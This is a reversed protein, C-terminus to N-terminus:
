PTTTTMGLNQGSIRMFRRNEQSDPRIECVLDHGRYYLEYATKDEGEVQQGCLTLAM